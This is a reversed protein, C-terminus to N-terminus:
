LFTPVTPVHSSESLILATLTGVQERRQRLLSCGRERVFLLAAGAGRKRMPLEARFTASSM